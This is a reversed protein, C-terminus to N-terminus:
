ALDLKQHGNIKNKDSIQKVINESIEICHDIKGSWIEVIEESLWRIESIRRDTATLGPQLSRTTVLRNALGEVKFDPLWHKTRELLGVEADDILSRLALQSWEPYTGSARDLVSISPAYILFRDTFGKPLITLFDGDIITVGTPQNRGSVELILTRHFEYKTSKLDVDESVIKDTGYTARIIFEFDKFVNGETDQISWGSTTKVISEIETNVLLNVKFDFIEKELQTRFREIDIVGEQCQWIGDVMHSKIGFPNSEKTSRLQIGASEAFDIFNQRTIKSGQSAVAYYNPFDTRVAQAYRSSFKQFGIKSQIATELDRPYHLGIHLRNQSNATGGQLIKQQTEFLYVQHGSKSLAIATTAGFAGAGIVAIRSVNGIGGSVHQAVTKTPNKTM